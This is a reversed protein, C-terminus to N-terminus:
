RNYLALVQRVYNRTEPYPPIANHYKMVTNEGANYAAVALDINSNFLDLLYRLYRTGGNINQHPDSRDLVGYQKATGPMLQMLGVAGASSKANVNYASETQIVAHVLKEDVQHRQAAQTIIDNFQAKKASQMPAPAYNKAWVSIKPICPRASALGRLNNFAVTNHQMILRTHLRGRHSSRILNSKNAPSVNARNYFFSRLQANSKAALLKTKRHTIPTSGKYRDDQLTTSDLCDGETSASLYQNRAHLKQYQKIAERNSLIFSQSDTKEQAKPETPRNYKSYIEKFKIQTAQTETDVATKATDPVTTQYSNISEDPILSSQIKNDSACGTGIIVISMLSLSTATKKLFVVASM